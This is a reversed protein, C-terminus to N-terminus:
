GNEDEESLIQYQNVGSNKLAWDPMSIMQVEDPYGPWTDTKLCEKYIKLAKRYALRGAIIDKSALEYAVILHPPTKEYALFVYAPMNETLTRWGDCYFSAGQYYGYRYIDRSFREKSADITSKLNIIIAHREHVYDPRAKCLLGSKKDKWVISVESRGQEIYRHIRQSKMANDLRLMSGYDNSAIIERGNVGKLFHEWIDKGAKTNRKCPPAIIYKQKFTEPELALAHLGHGYKLAPTPPKPNEKNHKAHAPSKTSLEWLFSNNVADWRQYEDFPVGPYIGPKLTM